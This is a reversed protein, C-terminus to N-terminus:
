DLPESVNAKAMKHNPKKQKWIKLRIPRRAEELRDKWLELTVQVL